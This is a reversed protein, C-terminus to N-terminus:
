VTVPPNNDTTKTCAVLLFDTLQPLELGLSNMVPVLICIASKSTLNQGMVYPILAFPLFMTNRITIKKTFPAGEAYPGVLDLNEDTTFQQLLRTMTNPIIVDDTEALLAKQFPISEVAVDEVDNYYIFAVNRHDGRPNVTVNHLVQIAGGLKDTEEVFVILGGNIGTAPGMDTMVEVLLQDENKSTNITTDYLAATLRSFEVREEATGSPDNSPDGCFDRYTKKPAM